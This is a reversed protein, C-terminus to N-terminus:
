FNKDNNFSLVENFNNRNALTGHGVMQNLNALVYNQDQVSSIQWLGLVYYPGMLAWQGYTPIMSM